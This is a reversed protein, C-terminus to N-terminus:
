HNRPRALMARLAGGHAIVEDIERRLAQTDPEPEQLLRLGTLPHVLLDKMQYCLARDRADAIAPLAGDKHYGAEIAELDMGQWSTRLRRAATLYEACVPHRAVFSPIMADARAALAELAPAQTGAQGADIATLVRRAEALYTDLEALVADARAGPAALAVGLLLAPFTLM